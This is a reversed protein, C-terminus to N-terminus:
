LAHAFRVVMHGSKDSVITLSSVSHGQHHYAEEQQFPFARMAFASAAAM